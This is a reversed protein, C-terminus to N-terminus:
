GNGAREPPPVEAVRAFPHHRRRVRFCAVASLLGLDVLSLALVAPEARRGACQVL